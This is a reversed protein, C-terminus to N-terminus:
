RKKPPAKSPRRLARDVTAIAAEDFGSGPRPVKVPKAPVSPAAPPKAGFEHVWVKAAQEPDMGKEVYLSHYAVAIEKALRLPRGHEHLALMFRTIYADPTLKEAM